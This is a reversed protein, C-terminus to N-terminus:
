FKASHIANNLRKSFETVFKESSHLPHGMDQLIGHTMEHWFTEARQKPPFPNNTVNCRKAVEIQEGYTICGRVATKRMKTPQQVAYWCKGIKINKPMQMHKEETKPLYMDATLTVKNFYADPIRDNM